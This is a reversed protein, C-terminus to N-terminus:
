WSVSASLAEIVSAVRVAGRGDVLGRASTSLHRRADHDHALRTAVTAASVRDAARVAGAVAAGALAPTQNDAISFAVIPRGLCCAELMTVGGATVVLDAAAIEAALDPPADLVHIRQDDTGRGWAGVVLRIDADVLADALASAVGAGIGESDTAGTAVLVRRVTPEIDAVPFTRLRADVLAYDAGALVRAAGPHPRADAGPRPDVVVDVALGREIDDIAVIRRARFRDSDDARVRYSDVLILYGAVPDDGLAATAVEVGLGGLERQICEIRRRHGLGLGPGEDFVATIM